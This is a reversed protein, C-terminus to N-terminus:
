RPAGVRRPFPLPLPVPPEGRQQTAAAIAAPGYRGLDGLPTRALELAPDGMLRRGSAGLLRTALPLGAM